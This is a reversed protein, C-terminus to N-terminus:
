LLLKCRDEAARIYDRSVEIGVSKRGLWFSVLNTTGTGAFPDLVV